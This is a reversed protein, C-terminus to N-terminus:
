RNPIEAPLTYIELLIEGASANAAAHKVQVTYAGATLEVICAADKGDDDLPFAGVSAAAERLAAAGAPTVTWNDNSAVNTDGRKVTLVPDSAVA